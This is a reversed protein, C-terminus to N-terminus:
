GKGRFIGWLRGTLGASRSGHLMRLRYGQIALGVVTSYAADPLTDGMAELGYPQGLRVPLDLAREAASVLGGLKGGGGTLVIGGGLQRQLGSNELEKAILELLEQIRPEIIERLMAYNVTRSPREGVSAVELPAEDSESPDRRGWAVKMKEAEPIPTRLGVAIDNTFHDGGIPIVSSSWVSGEHYIILNSSGGGIDILAVGLEREDPTLCADAAALAEFITENVMIGVRNVAAVANEHAVTSATVLHVSVELRSGVMGVPNRIGNQSDLLYEQREAYIVKRDPPLSVAQAAEFVRRVDEHTVERAAQPSKELNLGGRSNIGQIHPGGVGLYANDIPVGAADEATEVAKKISLLASDLNVITGRRWGRSEAVGFGAMRLRGNEVPECVLACTKASGLDLAAIYSDKLAM